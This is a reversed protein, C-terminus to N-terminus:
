NCLHTSHYKLRLNAVTLVGVKPFVYMDEGSAVMYTIWLSEATDLRTPLFVEPLIPWNSIIVQAGPVGYDFESRIFLIRHFEKCIVHM